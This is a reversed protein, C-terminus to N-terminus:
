PTTLALAILDDVVILRTRSVLHFQTSESPKDGDIRARMYIYIVVDRESERMRMTLTRFSYRIFFYHFAKADERATIKMVPHLINSEKNSRTGAFGKARFGKEWNKNRNSPSLSRAILKRESFTGTRLRAAIFFEIARAHRAEWM